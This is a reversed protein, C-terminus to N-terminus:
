RGGKDRFERRSELKRWPQVQKPGEPDSGYVAPITEDDVTWGSPEIRDIHIVHRERRYVYSNLRGPEIAAELEVRGVYEPDSGIGTRYVYATRAM